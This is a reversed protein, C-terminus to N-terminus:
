QIVESKIEIEKNIDKKRLNIKSSIEERFSKALDRFENLKKEYASDIEKQIEDHM